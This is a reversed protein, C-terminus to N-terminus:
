DENPVEIVKKLESEVEKTINHDPGFVQKCTVLLMTLLERADGGTPLYLLV